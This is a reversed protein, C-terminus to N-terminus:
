LSTRGKKKRKNRQEASKEELTMAKYGPPPQFFAAAPLDRMETPAKSRAAAADKGDDGWVCVHKVAVTIRMSLILPIMVKVPFLDMDGYQSMFKHVQLASLAGTCITALAM